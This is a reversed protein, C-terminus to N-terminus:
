SVKLGSAVQGDPTLLKLSEGDNVALIMGHSMVGMMKRPKLNAVIVVTKGVVEEASYKEAIGAVVIREEGGLDLTLKLLKKAKKIKEAQKITATRLDVKTFDEFEILDDDQTASEDISASKAEELIKEVAKMEIRDALRIFEGITHNTLLTKHDDWRFPDVLLIKEVKAAFEPIVPKLYITILRLANIGATLIEGARQTDNKYEWPKASDIYTNAIDAMRVIRRVALAFDCSNYDSGIAGGEDIMEQLMRAEPGTIGTLKNGLASNKNFMSITRSALNAIKNVLEANVRHFFDEFNLDLDDISNKLKCAYYFRLYEPDLHNLYDRANIFTGKSKSMKEGNITLFGHVHIKDPLSFGAGELMPVWFLTHFYVIDKGIFHHIAPEGSKWLYDFDEGNKDAWNKASALYGVPADLWVYFFKNEEGPIRFGFYPGDRSIDWEKLGEKLWTTLFNKVEEQLADSDLFKKLTEEYDSVRFFYHSSSKRTPQNGCMSCKPEKLDTTDYHAGCTDCADGYQDPADCKPCKGLVFRDPLFMGDKECFANSVDRKVIGGKNTLKSFIDESLIRNEESNTSHYNDFKINFDAFDALHEKQYREIVAEPTTGENRARIMIPAGHTDDACFYLARVGRMRNFRVFIDTQIYEVLHGLHISGNAYPLAATVVM